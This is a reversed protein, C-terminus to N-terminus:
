AYVNVVVHKKSCKWRCAVSLDSVSGFIAFVQSIWNVYTFSFVFLVSNFKYDSKLDARNSATWLSCHFWVLQQVSNHFYKTQTQTMSDRDRFSKTACCIFVSIFIARRAHTHTHWVCRISACEFPLERTFPCISTYALLFLVCQVLCLIDLGTSENEYLHFVCM